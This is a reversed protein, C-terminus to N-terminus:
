QKAKTHVLEDDSFEQELDIPRKVKSHMHHLEDDNAEQRQYTQM